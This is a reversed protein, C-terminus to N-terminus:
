RAIKIKSTFVNDNEMIRLVYLGGNITVVSLSENKRISKSRVLQGTLDFIQVLAEKKIGNFYLINKAPNPYFFLKTEKETTNAGSIGSKLNASSVQTSNNVVKFNDFLVTAFGRLGVKGCIFPTPDNYDIKLQGDVFVKINNDKVSVKLNYQQNQQFSGSEEKLLKWNYQQKGLIVSTPTLSVFYGKYFDIGLAPNNGAFGNAPETVRFIIGANMGSLYTIDTEVDYNSWSTSGVCKKGASNLQVQNGNISWNGDSYNWEGAVCNTFQDLFTAVSNDTKKFELEYFDYEGEVIEVKIIQNGQSLSIEPIIKTKFDNWGGSSPLTIVGSVDQNGQWVRVKCTSLTTAYKLGINYLGNEKVNVNYTYWEGTQNWGTTYGGLPCERIDVRDNRIYGGGINENTHDLYGVNQGGNNYHVASIIGPVPKHVDFIGNGQVHDSFAVYGFDAHSWSTMYGVKGAGLPGTIDAKLMGDVFFKYNEGFKEIRLNHWANYNWGSPLDYFKSISWTNDVLFNIELQNTYSHFLAIGFTSEDVYGFVVGYRADNHDRHIEKATFEATYNTGTSKANYIAKYWTENVDDSKDQWMLEQNYIGWLGGNPMIWDSGIETREFYDVFDPMKPVEQQWTTPGLISLKDGNFAIRDLNYHRIPGYAGMNVYNHYCFYYSDLDPGKFATGHGLGTHTGETSILIPNQKAQPVYSGLPNVDSVAYDIRYGRSLVHNGTYLMYYKGNRKFASAGETWTHNGAGVQCNINVGNSLYTPNPMHCGEIGNNGGYYFYWEGNDDILVSGDITHGLNGTANIFPGMPSNSTLVYHGKGEPSTYMYFTGNWYIVEPAYAGRTIPDTSCTIADSWNVLDKSKFCKVGVTNDRTSIYLYFTGNYKMIYPDGVGYQDWEGSLIKPNVYQSYTSSLCTITMLTIVIIRLSKKM